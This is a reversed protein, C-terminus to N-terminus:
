CFSNSHSEFSNMEVSIMNKNFKTYKHTLINSVEVIGPKGKTLLDCFKKVEYIQIKGDVCLIDKGPFLSLEKDLLSVYVGQYEIGFLITSSNWIEKTSM